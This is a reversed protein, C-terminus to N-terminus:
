PTVTLPVATVNNGENGEVVNGLADAQVLLFYSGPPTAAPITVARSYALTANVGLDAAHGPSTWLLTDGGLTGNSSLYIRERYAVTVAVSGRNAVQYSVTTPAGARLSSASLKLGEIRLDKRSRTVTLPVATVNNAENGEAVAGPADALVLVFYNGPPIGAPITVARSYALTANAALDTSHGPSTGLLTDGGFTANSSLYIRETYVESVAVSGRNAIRYSVTASTGADLSGVSLSLAEIRLDKYPSAVDDSVITVTASRPAGLSYRGDPDLSVVVAENPEVVADNIPSVVIASSAAGMPLTVSGKLATYDAGPTATGTV